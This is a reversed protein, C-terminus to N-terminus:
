PRIQLPVNPGIIKYTRRIADRKTQPNYLILGEKAGKHHLANGVAYNLISSGGYIDQQKLPVHAMVVSGCPIMPMTSLDLKHGHWLEYPTSDPGHIRGCVNHKIVCDM